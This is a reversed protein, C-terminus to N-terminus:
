SQQGDPWKDWVKKNTIPANTLFSSFLNVLRLMTKLIMLKIKNTNTYKLTNNVRCCLINSKGIVTHTNNATTKAVFKYKFFCLFKISDKITELLINSPQSVNGGCAVILCVFLSTITL